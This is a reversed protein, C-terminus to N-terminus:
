RGLCLRDGAVETTPVDHLGADTVDAVQRAVGRVHRGAVLTLRPRPEPHVDVVAKGRQVDHTRFLLALDGLELCQELVRVLEEEGGVLVPLALGDGPVQQLRELGLHRHVSHHEVLDSRLGDPGRDLVRPFEVTAEDVGLLGPPDQVPEVAVLDARHQPLLHQGLERGAPHLADGGPHHDLPLPGPHAKAAGAPPVDGPQESPAISVGGDGGGACGRGVRGRGACEARCQPRQVAAPERRALVEVGVGARQASARIAPGRVEDVQVLRGRAAQGFPQERGLEGDATHLVLGVTAARRCREHGGGQLLLGAALQAKGALAGHLDGLPQVVVTVDGVHAGVRCGQRLARQLGGAGLGASEVARLVDRVGGPDIGLLHLVRLLGMLRDPGGSVAEAGGPLQARLDGGLLESKILQDPLAGDGALHGVGASLRDRQSEAADGRGALVGLEGGAPRRNGKRAEQSGVDLAAVVGVAVEVGPVAPQRPQRGAGHEVHPLELRLVVGRRWGGPVGLGAQDLRELLLPHAARRRVGRDDRGDLVAPVHPLLAAGEDRGPDGERHDSQQLLVEGPQDVVAEGRGHLVVEVVDGAALLVRHRPEGPEVEAAGPSVCIADTGLAPQLPHDGLPETLDVSTANVRDADPGVRAALGDDDPDAPKPRVHLAAVALIAVLRADRLVEGRVLERHGLRQLQQRRRASVAHKAPM